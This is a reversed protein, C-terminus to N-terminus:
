EYVMIIPRNREMAYTIEKSTSEGIYNGPCIVHVEDSLDIKRLHLEDLMAKIDSTITTGYKYEAHGFLGVSLVICGQLTLREQHKIFLDKFKTSGCLCIIKPATTPIGGEFPPYKLELSPLKKNPCIQEHFEGCEFCLYSKPMLSM